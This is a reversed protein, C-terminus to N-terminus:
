INRLTSEVIHDGVSKNGRSVLDCSTELLDAMSIREPGFGLLIASNGTKAGLEILDGQAFFKIRL